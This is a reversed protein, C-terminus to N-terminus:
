PAGRSECDTSIMSGCVSVASVVEMEPSGCPVAVTVLLHRPKANAGDTPFSKAAGNLASLTRMMSGAVLLVSVRATEPPAAIAPFHAPM